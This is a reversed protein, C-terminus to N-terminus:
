HHSTLPRMPPHKLAKRPEGFIRESPEEMGMAGGGGM